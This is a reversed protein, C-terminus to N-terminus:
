IFLCVDTLLKTISLKDVDSFNNLIEDISEDKKTHYQSGINSKEAMKRSNHNHLLIMKYCNLNKFDIRHIKSIIALFPYLLLELM